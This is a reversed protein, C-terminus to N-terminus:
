GICIINKGSLKARYMIKDVMQFFDHANYGSAPYSGIGCSFTIKQEPMSEFTHQYLNSQVTTLIENAKTTTVKPFIITFEEGGYRYVYGKNGCCYQLQSAIYILVENAKEHGWKDNVTKFNDIDIVAITLPMEKNKIYVNLKDYFNAMNYLGTLCDCKLLEELQLQKFTMSKLITNKEKEISTLIQTIINCGLVLIISLFLEMYYLHNNSQADNIAFVSSILMFVISVFTIFNTMKKSGYIVTLIIPITFLTLSFMFANHVCSIILFQISLILISWYNKSQESVKNNNMIKMGLLVLLYNATSPVIIYLLIYYPTPLEIIEPFYKLLHYSGILELFLTFSANVFCVKNLKIRWKYYMNEFQDMIVVM